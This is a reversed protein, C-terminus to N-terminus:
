ASGLVLYSGGSKVVNGDALHIGHSHELNQHTTVVRQIWGFGSWWTATVRDLIKSRAPFSVSNTNSTHIIAPQFSPPTREQPGNARLLVVLESMQKKSSYSNTVTM